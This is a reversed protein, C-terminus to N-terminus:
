TRPTTVAERMRRRFTVVDNFEGFLVSEEPWRAFPSAYHSAGRLAATIQYPPLGSRAAIEVFEETFRISWDHPCYAAAPGLWENVNAKLLRNMATERSAPPMALFLERTADCPLLDDDVLTELWDLARHRVAATRWGEILM